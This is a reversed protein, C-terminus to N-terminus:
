SVMELVREYQALSCGTSSQVFTRMGEGVLNISRATMIAKIVFSDQVTNM